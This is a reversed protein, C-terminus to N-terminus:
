NERSNSILFELTNKNFDDTKELIPSHLCDEFIKMEVNKLKGRIIEGHIKPPTIIDREGFTIYTPATIRDLDDVCDHSLVADCQSIFGHVPQEPRDKMFNYLTNIYEPNSSYLEPSLCLPFVATAMADVVNGISNAAIKWNNVLSGLHRDTKVWVGHLSLSKIIDPYKVALQLAIGAGMSVGALHVRELGMQGVFAAVDEAMLEITYEGEPKGSLGAGRPDIVYCTFHQSYLPLQFAYCGNDASLFPILVLPEGSGQVEFNINIGNARVEPM